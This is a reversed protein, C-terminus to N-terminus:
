GIRVLGHDSLEGLLAEPERGLVIALAQVDDRRLSLMRGNYDGRQVQITTAYRILPEYVSEPLHAGTLRTLDLVVHDFAASETTGHESRDPLLESVPAGYFEALAALKSVSVARDGREYSGVV